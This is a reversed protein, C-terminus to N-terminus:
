NGGQAPKGTLVSVIGLPDSASIPFSIPNTLGAGTCLPMPYDKCLQDAVTFQTLATSINLRIRGREDDGVSNGLNQMLLPVVDMFEALGAQHQTLVTGLANVNQTIAGVDDGHEAMFSDVEDLVVQLDRLPTAIDIREASWQDGLDGLGTVMDDLSVQRADLAQMLSGMNAVLAGIDEARAGVVGTAASLNVIASNFAEGQGRWGDASQTLLDGVQGDGGLADTLTSISGMLGDFDIPAHSREPPIEAGDELRPGGQYVPGLEVHRDSIVSPNLVYASADAALLVDDPMTMRVQVTAGQPTVDTVTGVPVGLITVKSGVYIGNVYSFNATVSRSNDTGGFVYWGAAVVAAVLVAASVIKGWPRTKTQPTRM